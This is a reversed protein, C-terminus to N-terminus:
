LPFARSNNNGIGGIVKAICLEPGLEGKGAPLDQSVPRLTRLVGLVKGPSQERNELAALPAGARLGFM